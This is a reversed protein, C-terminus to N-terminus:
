AILVSCSHIKARAPGTALSYAWKKVSEHSYLPETKSRQAAEELEQIYQLRQTIQKEVAQNIVYSMSRDTAAAYAAVAERVEPKLRVSIPTTPQPM